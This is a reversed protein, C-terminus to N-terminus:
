KAQETTLGVSQMMVLIFPFLYLLCFKLLLSFHKRVVKLLYKRAM